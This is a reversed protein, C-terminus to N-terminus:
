NLWDFPDAASFTCALSNEECYTQAASGRDVTLTLADCGRFAQEGIVTVSGPVALATLSACGRFAQEGIETLTAPLTVSALAECDRFAQEGIVTVGDPITVDTLTACGRFLQEGIRTVTLGDIEAPIDLVAPTGTFGTLEATGDGLAQWTFSVEEAAPAEAPAATEEPAPEAGPLAYAFAVKQQKCYAEAESGETVTVVLNPHCNTFVYPKLTTVSAPVTVSTLRESGYFAREGIETVGEPIRISILSSANFADNGIVLTGEPVTYETAPATLLYAILTGTTTDFLANDTVKLVTNEPDVKISALNKCAAFAAKGVLTVNKPLCVETLATYSFAEGYIYRM